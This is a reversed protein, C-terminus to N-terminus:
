TKNTPRDQASEVVVLNKKRWQMTELSMSIAGLQAVALAVLFLTLVITLILMTAPLRARIKQSWSQMDDIKTQYDLVVTRADDLNQRIDSLSKSILGVQGQLSNINESSTDLNTSIERFSAPLGDMSTAVGSLSENLPEPPKYDIGLFSLGYLLTDIVKASSKAAIISIQTKKITSILDNKFFASFNAALKTTDEMSKVIADTTNELTTLSTGANDLVNDVVTLGDEATSLLDDSVNLINTLGNTVPVRWQWIKVIGFM